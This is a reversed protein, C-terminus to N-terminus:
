PRSVCSNHTTRPAHHTASTAGVPLTEPGELFACLRREGNPQDAISRGKCGKHSTPEPNPLTLGKGPGFSMM